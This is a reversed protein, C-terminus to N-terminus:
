RLDELWEGVVLQAGVRARPEIRVSEATVFGKVASGTRIHISDHALSEGEFEGFLEVDRAELEGSLWSGPGLTVSHRGSVVQADITCDILM